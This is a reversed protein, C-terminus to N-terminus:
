KEAVQQRIRTIQGTHTTQYYGSKRLHEQFEGSRIVLLVGPTLDDDPSDARVVLNYSECALFHFALGAREASKRSCIGADATDRSIAEAVGADSRVQRYGQIIERHVGYDELIRELLTRASTGPARKVTRVSALDGPMLGERSAIGLEVEAITITDLLLHTDALSLDKAPDLSCFSVAHCSGAKFAQIAQAAQTSSCRLRIERETLCHALDDLCPDREGLILYNRDVRGPPGDLIVEVEKGAEIGECAAPIRLHGDSRIISIQVGMGRSHPVAYYSSGVKGVSVSVFEEYGLDSSLQHSLKAKLPYSFPTALGWWALLRGAFERITCSAATPYGPVGIVPVEDVSGLMVPAGPKMAVGHFLLTGCSSIVEETFDTTGASSGASIIVLENERVARDLLEFLSRKDARVIPYRQFSAGMGSFFCRAAMSNSEVVAGPGPRAGAPILEDGTPIFGVSATQVVLGTIGYTALGGVDVARVLHGKPLILDGKRIDEGAPHIFQGPFTSKRIRCEAGSMWVDEIMIVADYGAPIPQGTNIPVFNDLVLPARDGAGRTDSSRVAIGDMAALDTGPVSYTAYVPEATVRGVAQELPVCESVGPPPFSEKLIHLAENFSILSLYRRQMPFGGLRQPFIVRRETLIYYNNKLFTLYEEDIGNGSRRSFSAGIIGSATAYARDPLNLEL